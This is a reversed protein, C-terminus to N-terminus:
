SNQRGNSKTRLRNYKKERTPRSVRKVPHVPFQWDMVRDTTSTIPGLVGGFSQRVIQSAEHMDNAEVKVSGYFVLSMDVDYIRM